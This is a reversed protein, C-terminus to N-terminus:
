RYFTFGMTWKLAPENMLGLKIETFFRNGSSIVHEIGTLFNLGGEIDTDDRGTTNDRDIFNIGPGGGIYPRWSPEFEGFVYAIEMNFAGITSRDGVGLEFNPQFRTRTGIEGAHLHAGIHVQDPDGTFGFRPGWGDIAAALQTWAIVIAIPLSVYLLFRRM